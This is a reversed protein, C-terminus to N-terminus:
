LQFIETGEYEGKPNAERIIDKKTGTKTVKVRIARWAPLGGNGNPFDGLLDMANAGRATANKGFSVHGYGFPVAVTEPGIGPYVLAPAEVSGFPSEVKLMDGNAVGMGKATKPNIEVWSGWSVTTMPEPMEQLWSLNSVNGDGMNVTSYPHLYFTFDNGGAFAPDGVKLQDSTVWASGESIAKEAKHHIDAWWGGKQLLAEWAQKENLGAPIGNWKSRFQILMNKVMVEQNAIGVGLGAMSAAKLLADGAQMTGPAANVVPQITNFVPVGHPFDVVQASWSELFHLDPLVVDAYLSTDDLFNTVQAVFKVKTLADAAKLAKPTAYVPNSHLILGFRQSGTAAKGIVGKLASYKKAKEPVGIFENMARYLEKNEKPLVPVSSLGKEAALERLISNLFEVAKLSELGNTHLAVDDGPVVVAPLHEVLEMALHKVKDAPVTTRISTEEPTYGGIAHRWEEVKTAPLNKLLHEEEAIHLIENAIGLAFQGLTGQKVAFFHDASAATMSLRPGAYFLQGRKTKNGRRMQGFAWGYHVPSAGGEFIDAGLLLVASANAIDYYPVKPTGTSSTAEIFKERSDFGSVAFNDSGMNKLIRATIAATMDSGDGAIIFSSDEKANKMNESIMSIAEEWTIPVLNGTGKAGERRMPTMLREPHYLQQVAAQGRACVGGKNIPHDPNGEVKKARGEVVRVMIGCGSDCMRCATNYFWGEVPNIGEDPPIAFPIVKQAIQGCSGVLGTAAVTGGIKLFKRRDM